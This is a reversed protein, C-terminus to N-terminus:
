GVLWGVLVGWLFAGHDKFVLFGAAMAAAAEAPPETGAHRVDVKTAPRPLTELEPRGWYSHEVIADGVQKPTPNAPPPRPRHTLHHTSLSFIGVTM